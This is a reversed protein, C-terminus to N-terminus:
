RNGSAKTTLRRVNEQVYKEQPRLSLAQRMDTLAQKTNGLAEYTEARTVYAAFLNRDLDISRNCDALARRYDKKLNFLHCRYGYAQANTKALEIAKNIDDMADDQRKLDTFIKAREFYLESLAAPDQPSTEIARNMDSLADDFKGKIAHAMSRQRFIWSAQPGIRLATDYDAIAADFQNMMARVLGRFAYATPSEPNLEISRTLDAAAAEFQNQTYRCFGRYFYFEPVDNKLEIARSYEKIADAFRSADYYKKARDAVVMYQPLPEVTVTVPVRSGQREVTFSVQTGPKMQHVLRSIDAPSGAPQGNVELIIDQVRIGANYAPSGSYVYAVAPREAKNDSFIRQLGDFIGGPGGAAGQIVGIDFGLWVAAAPTVPPAAVPPSQPRDGPKPPKGTRRTDVKEAPFITAKLGAVPATPSDVPDATVTSGKVARVRWTGVSLSAGTATVYSLEVRDGPRVSGPGDLKIEVSKGSVSVVNGRVEATAGHALVVMFLVPLLFIIALGRSTKSNM